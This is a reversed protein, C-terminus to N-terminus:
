EGVIVIVDFTKDDHDSSFTITNIAPAQSPTVILEITNGDWKDAWKTTVAWGSAQCRIIDDFKVTVKIRESPGGKKLYIVQKDAFYSKSAYGLTNNEFLNCIEDFLNAKTNASALQAKKESLQKSINSITKKQQETNKTLTGNEKELDENRQELAEIAQKDAKAEEELESIRNSQLVNSAFARATQVGQAINISIAIACAIALVVIAVVAKKSMRYVLTTKASTPAVVPTRQQATTAPALPAPDPTGEHISRGCKPCFFRNNMTPAGCHKCTKSNGDDAPVAKAVGPVKEEESVKVEVVAPRIQTGCFHCFQSDDPLMNRCNPCKPGFTM